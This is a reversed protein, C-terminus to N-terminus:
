NPVSDSDEAEEASMTTEPPLPSTGPKGEFAEAVAVFDSAEHRAQILGALQMSDMGSSHPASAGATTAADKSSGKAAPDDFGPHLKRADAVTGEVSKDFSHYQEGRETPRPRSKKRSHKGKTGAQCTKEASAQKSM